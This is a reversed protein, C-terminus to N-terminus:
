NRNNADASLHRRVQDAVIRELLAVRDANRPRAGLVVPQDLVDIVKRTHKMFREVDRLGSAGTRHHNVDWLVNLKRGTVVDARRVDRVLGVLRAQLWLLRRHALSDIQQDISLLRQEIRTAAYDVGAGFGTLQQPFNNPEGTIGDGGRQHPKTGKGGGVLM